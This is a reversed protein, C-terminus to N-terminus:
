AEPVVVVLVHSCPQVIEGSGRRKAAIAGPHGRATREHPVLQKPKRIPLAGVLLLLGDVGGRLERLDVDGMRGRRAYAVGLSAQIPIDRRGDAQEVTKLVVPVQCGAAGWDRRDLADVPAVYVRRREVQGPLARRM